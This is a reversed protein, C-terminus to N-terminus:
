KAPPPAPPNDGDGQSDGNGDKNFYLHYVSQVVLLLASFMAVLTEPKFETHQKVIVYAIAISFAFFAAGALVTLIWRGSSMQSVVRDSKKM